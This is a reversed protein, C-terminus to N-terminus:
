KPGDIPNSSEIIVPPFEASFSQARAQEYADTIRGNGKYPKELAAAIRELALCQREQLYFYADLWKQIKKM